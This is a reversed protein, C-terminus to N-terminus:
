SNELKARPTQLVLAQQLLLDYCSACSVKGKLHEMVLSDLYETNLNIAAVKEEMALGVRVGVRM